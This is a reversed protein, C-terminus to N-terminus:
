ILGKTLYLLEIRQKIYESLHLYENGFIIELTSDLNKELRGTDGISYSYM